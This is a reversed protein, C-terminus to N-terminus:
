LDPTLLAVAARMHQAMLALPRSAVSKTQSRLLPPPDRFHNQIDSIAALCAHRGSAVRPVNRGSRGSRVTMGTPVSTRKPYLSKMGVGEGSGSCRSFPIARVEF